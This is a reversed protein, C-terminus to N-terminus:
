FEFEKQRKSAATADAKRKRKGAAGEEGLDSKAVSASGGTVATGVSEAGPLVYARDSGFFQGGAAASTSREQIVQYLEKNVVDPTELGTRKRLDIADPTELGSIMSSIGEITMPTEAGMEEARRLEADSVVAPAGEEEEEEDEESSYEPYEPAV